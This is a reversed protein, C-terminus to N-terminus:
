STGHSSERRRWALWPLFFGAPLPRKPIAEFAPRLLPAPRGKAPSVISIIGFVAAAAGAFWWINIRGAFGLVAGLATVQAFFMVFAGLLADPIDEGALRAAARRAAAFVLANLLIFIVLGTINEM